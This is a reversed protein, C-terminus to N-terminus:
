RRLGHREAVQKGLEIDDSTFPDSSLLFTRYHITEGENTLRWGYEEHSLDSVQRATLSWLEDIVENVIEMEELSFVTVDPSRMAVPRQQVTNFYRRFESKLLGADLMSQRVSPLLRPAPGESLHQYEAGTIPRGLRQYAIFDSYYLIKNLKVAGFKPAEECRVAIYLLLERFKNENFEFKVTTM